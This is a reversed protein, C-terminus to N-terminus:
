CGAVSHCSRDGSSGQAISCFHGSCLQDTFFSFLQGPKVIPDDHVWMGAAKSVQISTIIIHMSTWLFIMCECASSTLLVLLSSPMNVARRQHSGGGRGVAACPVICCNEELNCHPTMQDVPTGSAHSLHNRTAVGLNYSPQSQLISSHTHQSSLYGGEQHLSNRRRHHPPCQLVHRLPAM